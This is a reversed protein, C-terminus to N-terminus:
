GSAEFPQWLRRRGTGNRWSGQAAGEMAALAANTRGRRTAEAIASDILALRADLDAVAHAAVEIKGAIEADQTEIAAQGSASAQAPRLFM